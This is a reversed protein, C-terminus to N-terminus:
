KWTPKRGRRAPQNPQREKRAAQYAGEVMATLMDADQKRLGPLNRITEEVDAMSSVPKVRKAQKPNEFDGLSKGLWRTILIANTGDLGTAGRMLRSLTPASVGMENAAQRLSLGRAELTSRLHTRLKELDLMNIYNRM